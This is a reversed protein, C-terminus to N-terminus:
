EPGEDDFIERYGSVSYGILQYFEKVEAETFIKADYMGFIDNLNVRTSMDLLYRIIRNAQYRRIGDVEVIERNAM